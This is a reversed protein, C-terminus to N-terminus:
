KSGNGECWQGQGKIMSVGRYVLEMVCLFEFWDRICLFCRLFFLFLVFAVGGCHGVVLVLSRSGNVGAVLFVCDFGLGEEPACHAVALCLVQFSVEVLLGDEGVRALLGERGFGLRCELLVELLVPLGPRRVAHVVVGFKDLDVHHAGAQHVADGGPALLPLLKDRRLSNAITNPLLFRSTIPSAAAVM